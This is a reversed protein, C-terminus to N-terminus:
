MYIYRCTHIHTHANRRLFFYCQAALMVQCVKGRFDVPTCALTHLCWLVTKLFTTTRRVNVSPLLTVTDAAMINSWTIVSEDDAYSRLVFTQQPQMPVSFTLIIKCNPWKPNRTPIFMQNQSLKYVRTYLWRKYQKNKIFCGKKKTAITPCLTKFGSHSECKSWYKLQQTLSFYYIIINLRLCKEWYLEQKSAATITM